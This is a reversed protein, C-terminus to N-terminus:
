IKDHKILLPYYIKFYQVEGSLFNIATRIRGMTLVPSVVCYHVHLFLIIMLM